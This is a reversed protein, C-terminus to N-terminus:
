RSLSIGFAAGAVVGVMYCVVFGLWFAPFWSRNTSTSRLWWTGGFLGVLFITGFLNPLAFQFGSSWLFLLGGGIGLAFSLLFKM